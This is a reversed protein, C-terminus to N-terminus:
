PGPRGMLELAQNMRGLEGTLTLEEGAGRPSSHQLSALRSIEFDCVRICVGMHACM